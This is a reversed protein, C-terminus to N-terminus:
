SSKEFFGSFLPGIVSSPNSIISKEGPAISFPNDKTVVPARNSAHGRRYDAASTLTLPAEAFWDAV